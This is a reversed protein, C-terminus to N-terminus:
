TLRPWAAAIAAREDAPDELEVRRWREPYRALVESRVLPGLAALADTGVPLPLLPIEKGSARSLARATHDQFAQIDEPRNDCAHIAHIQRLCGEARARPITRRTEEGVQRIVALLPIPAPPVGLTVLDRFDPQVYPFLAPPIVSFGARGYALLRIITDPEEAVAPEMEAFLIIESTSPDLGAATLAQRCLGVPAARLLAALGSRRYPPLVLTHSLLAVCRRAALDLTVFCDRVGALAGQQTRDRALVMHYSSQIRAPWAEPPFRPGSSWRHLVEAREIEGRPGFVANLAHYGEDFAAADAAAELAFRELAARTKDGGDTKPVDDPAIM